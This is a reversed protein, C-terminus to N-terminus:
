DFQDAPVAVALRPLTSLASLPPPPHLRLTSYPILHKALLYQATFNNIRIRIQEDGDRSANNQM